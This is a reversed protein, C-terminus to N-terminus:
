GFLSGAASAAKLFVKAAQQFFDQEARSGASRDLNPELVFRAYTLLAGV